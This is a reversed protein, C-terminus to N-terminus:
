FSVNTHKEKIGAIGIEHSFIYLRIKNSCDGRKYLVSYFLDKHGVNNLMNNDKDM